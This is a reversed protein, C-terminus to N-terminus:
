MLAFRKMQFAPFRVKYFSAVGEQKLMLGIYSFVGHQGSDAMLRTGIVDWPSGLVTAALGATMGAAFHTPISDAFGM